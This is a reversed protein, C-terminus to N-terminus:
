IWEKVVVEGYKRGAERLSIYKPEEGLEISKKKEGIKSVGDILRDLVESQIAYIM